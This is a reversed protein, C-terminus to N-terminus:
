IPNTADYSPKSGVPPTESCLLSLTLFNQFDFLKNIYINKILRPAWAIIFNKICISEM